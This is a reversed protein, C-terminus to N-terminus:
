LPTVEIATYMNGPPPPPPKQYRGNPTRTNRIRVTSVLAAIVARSARASMVWNIIFAVLAVALLLTTAALALAVCKWDTSAM